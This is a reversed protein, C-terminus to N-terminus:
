TTQRFLSYDSRMGVPGKGPHRTAEIRAGTRKIAADAEAGELIRTGQDDTSRLLRGVAANGATRQLALLLGPDLRGGGRALAVSPSGFSAFAGGSAPAEQAPEAPAASEKAEPEAM